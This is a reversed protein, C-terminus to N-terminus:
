FLNKTKIIDKTQTTNGYIDYCYDYICVGKNDNNKVDYEDLNVVRKILSIEGYTYKLNYSGIHLPHKRYKDFKKSSILMHHKDYKYNYVSLSDKDNMLKHNEDYSEYAIVRGEKDIIKKLM